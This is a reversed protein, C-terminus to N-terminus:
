TKDVVAGLISSTAKVGKWFGDVLPDTPDVEEDSEIGRNPQSKPEQIQSETMITKGDHYEPKEELFADKTVKAVLQKRYYDAAVSKYKNQAPEDLLEFDVM